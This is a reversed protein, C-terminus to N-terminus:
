GPKEVAGGQLGGNRCGSTATRIKGLRREKGSRRQRQLVQPGSGDSSERGGDIGTFQERGCGLRWVCQGSYRNRCCPRLINVKTPDNSQVFFIVNSNPFMIARMLQALNAHVESAPAAPAKPAEPAPAPIAPLCWVRWYLISGPKTNANPDGKPTSSLLFLHRSLCYSDRLLDIM